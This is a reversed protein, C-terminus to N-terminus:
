AEERATIAAERWGLGDGVMGALQHTYLLQVALEPDGEVQWLNHRLLNVVLRRVVDSGIAADAGDKAESEALLKLADEALCLAVTLGARVANHILLRLLKPDHQGQQAQQLIKEADEFELQLLISDPCECVPRRCYHCFSGDSM